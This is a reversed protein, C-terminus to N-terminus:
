GVPRTFTFPFVNGDVEIVIEISVTDLAPIRVVVTVSSAPTPVMWALDRKAADEFQLRTVPTLPLTELLYQTESRLRKAPDTEGVNGWWQLREDAKRGSDRKNGGFLSYFAAAELGDSMTSSGNVFEINGGDAEHFHRVDTM